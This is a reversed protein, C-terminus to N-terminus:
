NEKTHLGDDNDEVIKLIDGVISNIREQIAPDNQYDTMAQRRPDIPLWKNCAMFDAMIFYDMLKNAINENM